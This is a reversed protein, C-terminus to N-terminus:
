NNSLKTVTIILKSIIFVNTENSNLIRNIKFGITYEKMLAIIDIAELM